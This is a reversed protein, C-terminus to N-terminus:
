GDELNGVLEGNPDAIDGTDPNVSFDDTARGGCSQKIGHFRRRGADKGIGARRGWEEAGTDGPWFGPPRVALWIQSQQEDPHSVRWVFEFIQNGWIRDIATGVAFGATGAAIVAGIPNLSGLAEGLAEGLGLGPGLPIAITASRGTIDRYLVPNGRAYLYLNSDGSALLLPDKNTWRGIEPDYDRAGFRTLRTGADYLGGVFGFPQFGPSSDFVVNGWVDYDLRQAVAGTSVNIVL